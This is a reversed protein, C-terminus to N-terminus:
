VSIEKGYQIESLFMDREGDTPYTQTTMTALIPEKSEHPKGKYTKFGMSGDKLRKFVITTFDKGEYTKM